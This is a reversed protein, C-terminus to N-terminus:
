LSRNWQLFHNSPSHPEISQQHGEGFGMKKLSWGLDGPIDWELSPLRVFSGCKSGGTIHPRYRIFFQLTGMRGASATELHSSVALWFDWQALAMAVKKFSPAPAADPFPAWFLRLHCTLFWIHTWLWPTLIGRQSLDKWGISHTGQM